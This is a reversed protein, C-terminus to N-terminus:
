EKKKINRNMNLTYKLITKIYKKKTDLIVKNNRSNKQTM